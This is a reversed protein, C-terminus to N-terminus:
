LDLRILLMDMAAERRRAYGGAKKKCLFSKTAYFLSLFFVAVALLGQKCPNKMFLSIFYFSSTGFMINQYM